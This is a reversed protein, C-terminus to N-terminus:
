EHRDMISIVGIGSSNFGVRNNHFLMLRANYYFYIFLFSEFINWFNVGHHGLYVGHKGKKNGHEDYNEGAITCVQGRTKYHHLLLIGSGRVPM